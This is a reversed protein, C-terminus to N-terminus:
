KGEEVVRLDLFIADWYTTKAGTIRNYAMSEFYPHILQLLFAAAIFAGVIWWLLFDRKVFSM